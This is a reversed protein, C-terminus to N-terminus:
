THNPYLNPPKRSKHTSFTKKIYHRPSTKGRLDLKKIYVQNMCNSYQKAAIDSIEKMWSNHHIWFFL